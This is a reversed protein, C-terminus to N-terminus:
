VSKNFRQFIFSFGAVLTAGNLTPTVFRRVNLNSAKLDILKTSLLV